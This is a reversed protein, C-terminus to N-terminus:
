DSPWRTQPRPTPLEPVTFQTKPCNQSLKRRFLSAGISRARFIQLLILSSRLRPTACGPLAGAKPAPPRQNSDLRGSWKELEPTVGPHCAEPSDALRWRKGQRELWTWVDVGHAAAELRLQAVLAHSISKALLEEFAALEARGKEGGNGRQRLQAGLSVDSNCGEGYTL